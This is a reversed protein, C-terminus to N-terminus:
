SKPSIVVHRNEGEGESYTYVDPDEALAMHVLRRERAPQPDLVAEKNHAKVAEAYEKAKNMIVLNHRERYGEADLILRQRTQVNKAAAIGVLYQLADLTQGQRGILIAVESGKIEINVETESVSKLAVYADLKMSSLIDNLVKLAANTFEDDSQISEVKDPVPVSVSKATKVKASVPAYERKPNVVKANEVINGSKEWARITCPTGGIGLFGKAGQDIVEYDVAIVEVELEKAATEIAEELTRGSAEIKEL